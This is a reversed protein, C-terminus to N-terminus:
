PGSKDIIELLEDLDSRLEALRAALDKPDDREAVEDRLWEIARDLWVMRRAVRHKLSVVSNMSPRRTFTGPEVSDHRARRSM